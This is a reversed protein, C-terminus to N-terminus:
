KAHADNAFGSGALVINGLCYIMSVYLITNYRGAIKDAFWAGLLPMLYNASTFLAMTETATDKDFGLGGKANNLAAGTIYGALIGRIGYYSFRECAENGIIFKIQRPWRNPNPAGSIPESM